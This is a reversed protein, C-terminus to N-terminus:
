AYDNVEACKASPNRRQDFYIHDKAQTTLNGDAAQLTEDVVEELKLDKSGAEGGEFVGSVFSIGILAIIGTSFFGIQDKIGSNTFDLILENFALSIFWFAIGGVLGISIYGWIVNNLKRGAYNRFFFSIIASASGLVMGFICDNIVNRLPFDSTGINIVNHLDKSILEFSFHGLFGALAGLAITFSFGELNYNMSKIFSFVTLFVFFSVCLFLIRENPSHPSGTFQFVIGLASGCLLSLGFSRAFYNPAKKDIIANPDSADIIIAIDDIAREDKINNAILKRIYMKLRKNIFLRVDKIESSIREKIKDIQIHDIKDESLNSSIEDLLAINQEILKKDGEIDKWEEEPTKWDRENALQHLNEIVKFLKETEEGLKDLVSKLHKSAGLSLSFMSRFAYLMTDYVSFEKDGFEFKAKGTGFYLIAIVIPSIKRFKFLNLDDSAFYFM